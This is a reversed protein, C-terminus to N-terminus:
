AGPPLFVQETPAHPFLISTPLNPAFVQFTSLMGVLILHCRPSASAVCNGSGPFLPLSPPSGKDKWNMHCGRTFLRMGGALVVSVRSNSYQRTKYSTKATWADLHWTRTEISVLIVEGRDEHLKGGTRTSTWVLAEVSTCSPWIVDLVVAVRILSVTGPYCMCRVSLRPFRRCFGPFPTKRPQCCPALRALLERRPHSQCESLCAALWRRGGDWLVLAKKLSPLLSAVLFAACIALPLLCHASRM